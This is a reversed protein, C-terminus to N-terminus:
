RKAKPIVLKEATHTESFRAVKTYTLGIRKAEAFIATDRLGDRGKPHVVWIAGDPAIAAAAKALPALDHTTDAGLFVLNSASVLRGVVVREARERLQRLFDEDALALVSVTQGSKVDLKDLLARPSRIREAWKEAHDGLVFTAAGSAHEVHLAGADVSVSAISKLPIALRVGRADGRNDGRFLLEDTELLAKGEHTAKDLRLQCRAEAGM